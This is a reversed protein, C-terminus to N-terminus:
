AGLYIIPLRVKVSDLSQQLYRLDQELEEKAERARMEITQRPPPLAHFHYSTSLSTSLSLSLHPLSLSLSLSLCVSLCVSLCLSLHPLFFLM